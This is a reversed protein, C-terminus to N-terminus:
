ELRIRILRPMSEDPAAGSDQERGTPLEATKGLRSLAAGLADSPDYYYTEFLILWLSRPAGSRLGSVFQDLDPKTVVPGGWGKFPQSKWWQYMSGPFGVEEPQFRAQRAFYDFPVQGYQADFIVTDGPQYGKQITSVTEQWPHPHSIITQRLFGAAYVGLTLACVAVCAPRFVKADAWRRIVQAFALILAPVIYLINRTSYLHFVLVGMLVFLGILAFLRCVEDNKMFLLGAGAILIVLPIAAVGLLVPSKAPYCGIAAALGKLLIGAAVRGSPRLTEPRSGFTLSEPNSYSAVLVRDLEIKNARQSLVTPIWPSILAAFLIGAAGMRVLQRRAFRTAFLWDAFLGAVVFLGGYHVYFLAAALSAYAILWWITNHKDVVVIQHLTLLCVVVLIAMMYMRVELSYVFLMPSFAFLIAALCGARAGMFRRGVILMGFSACLSLLASLLRLQAPGDGVLRAWAWVLVWYLPPHMDGATHRLVEPFPLTAVFATYTEDLWLERSTLRAIKCCASVTIALCAVLVPHLWLWAALKKFPAGLHQLM